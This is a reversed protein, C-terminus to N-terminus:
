DNMMRKQGGVSIEVNGKMPIKEGNSDINSLDNETLTFSIKQSKGAKLHIRQFGKLATIPSKIDSNKQSVYLQVVEDGDTKGTNKITINATINNNKEKLFNLNSYEFTTYSLGFGFPYLPTGKYYRYTRNEMSYNEFDPLDSTNKYFTIPLRGSPNYDGFLVDAIATGGSQGAYWAQVIAPLHAAEWEFGMAGGSMNVFVVPKKTAELAKLLETQVSPLKIDTRDGEKFGEIKVAMNEGELKASIGGVFVIV